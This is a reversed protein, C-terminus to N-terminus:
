HEQLQAKKEQQQEVQMFEYFQELFYETRQQALPDHHNSEYISLDNPLGALMGHLRFDIRDWRANYWDWYNQNGVNIKYLTQNGICVARLYKKGADVRMWFQDGVTIDFHVRVADLQAQQQQTYPTRKYPRTM